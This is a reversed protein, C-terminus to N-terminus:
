ELGKLRDGPHGYERGDDEDKDRQDESEPSFWIGCYPCDVLGEDDPEQEFEEGCGLITSKRPGSTDPCRYKAM